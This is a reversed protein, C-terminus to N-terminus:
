QYSCTSRIRAPEALIRNWADCCTDIIHDLSDFLCYSLINDRTFQWLKEILGQHFPRDGADPVNMGRSPYAGKM